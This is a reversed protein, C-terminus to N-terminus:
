GANAYSDDTAPGLAPAANPSAGDRFRVGLVGPVTHAVIRALHRRFPDVPEALTVVGDAVEVDWRGYTTPETDLLKAVSSRIDADTRVLARLIDRRSVIGVVESGRVIPVHKLAQELMTRAIEAAALSDPLALVDRTMVDGVTTFASNDTPEIRRAANRPDDDRELRLFDAESVIGVLTGDDDVVPAAGIAHSVLVRAADKVLTGPHVTVVPSSMIEAAKM